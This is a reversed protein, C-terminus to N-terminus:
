CSTADAQVVQSREGKTKLAEGLLIQWGALECLVAPRLTVYLCSAMGKGGASQLIWGEPLVESSCPSLVM